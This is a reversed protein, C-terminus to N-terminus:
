VARVTGVATMANSKSGDSRIPSPATRQSVTPIAARSRQRRDDSAPTAARGATEADVVEQEDDEPDDGAGDDAPAEAVDQEMRREEPRVRAPDEVRADAAELEVRPTTPPAIM